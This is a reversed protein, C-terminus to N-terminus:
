DETAADHRSRFDEFYTKGNTKTENHQSLNEVEETGEFLVIEEVLGEVKLVGFDFIEESNDNQDSNEL